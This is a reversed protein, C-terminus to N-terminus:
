IFGRWRLVTMLLVFVVILSFAVSGLTSLILGMRRDAPDVAEFALRVDQEAKNIQKQDLMLSLKPHAAQAEAAVLVKASEHAHRPMRRGIKRMAPDLSKAKVSFKEEALVCLDANRKRIDNPDIM